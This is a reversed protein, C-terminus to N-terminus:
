TAIFQRQPYCNDQKTTRSPNKSKPCACTLEPFMVPETTSKKPVGIAFAANVTM